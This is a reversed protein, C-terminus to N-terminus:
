RLFRLKNQWSRLFMMADGFDGSKREAIEALPFNGGHGGESVDVYDFMLIHTDQGNSFDFIHPGETIGTMGIVGTASPINYMKYYGGLEYELENTNIIIQSFALLPICLVLFCIHKKM